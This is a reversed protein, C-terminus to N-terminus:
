FLKINRFEGSIAIVSLSGNTASVDFNGSVRSDAVETVAISGGTGVYTQQAGQATVDPTYVLPQISGTIVSMDYTGPATGNINLVIQKNLSLGTITLRNGTKVGTPAVASWSQGNIDATFTGLGVGDKCGSFTASMTVVAAPLLFFIKKM